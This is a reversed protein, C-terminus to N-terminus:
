ENLMKNINQGGQKTLSFPKTITMLKPVYNRGWVKRYYHNILSDPYIYSPSLVINPPNEFCYKNWHSEDNWIAIYNNKSFDEDIREKMTKMAKIFVDSRGGQFGGAFYLQEFKKGVVRGIRPIYATSKENPEYPPQYDRRVAYMPHQAAVLDGLVENGIRSVALMDADCYFIYDYEELFKEERLFLSYRHLTPLPWSFPETPIIKVGLEDGKEKPMDTWLIFDIEHGKLFFKRLSDICPRVYQWYPENLCIMVVAVRYHSKM